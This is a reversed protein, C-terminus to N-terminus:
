NFNIEEFCVHPIERLIGGSCNYLKIDRKQCYDLWLRYHHFLKLQNYYFDENGRDIQTQIRKKAEADSFKYAYAYAHGGGNEMYKIHSIAGTCDCGLLYIESAEMFIALAIGFEVVSFRTIITKTFDMPRKYNEYFIYKYNFYRTSIERDIGNNQIFNRQRLPFFSIIDKSKEKVMKMYKVYTEEFFCDDVWLHVNPNIAEFQGLQVATNCTIVFEHKLVSLDHKNLSPGNGLVFCRKGKLSGKFDMNQKLLPLGLQKSKYIFRVSNLFNYIIGIIHESWYLYKLRNRM